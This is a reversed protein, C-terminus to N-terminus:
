TGRPDLAAEFQDLPVPNARERQALDAFLQTNRPRCRIPVELIFAGQKGCYAFGACISEM